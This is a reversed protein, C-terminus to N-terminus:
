GLGICSLNTFAQLILLCNFYIKKSFPIWVVKMMAVSAMWYVRRNGKFKQYFYKMGGGGLYLKTVGFAEKPFIPFVYGSICHPDECYRNCNLLGKSENEKLVGAVSGKIEKM